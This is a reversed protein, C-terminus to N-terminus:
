GMFEPNTSSIGMRPMPRPMPRNPVMGGHKYMPMMPKIMGGHGYKPMVTGGHKYMPKVMGGHGYEPIMGGGEMEISEGTRNAHAIADKIGKESYPYEVAKQGKGEKPM